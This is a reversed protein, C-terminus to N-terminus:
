TTYLGAFVNGEEIPVNQFCPEHNQLGETTCTRSQNLLKGVKINHWINCNHEVKVPDGYQHITLEDKSKSM